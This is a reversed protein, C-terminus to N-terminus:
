RLPICHCAVCQLIMYRLTVYRLTIYHLLTLYPITITITNANTIGITVYRTYTHMSNYLLKHLEGVADVAVHPNNSKILPQEKERGGQWSGIAPM